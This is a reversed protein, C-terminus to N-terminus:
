PLAHHGQPLEQPQGAHQARLTNRELLVTGTADLVCVFMTKTHLDVGAYHTHQGDYFRM